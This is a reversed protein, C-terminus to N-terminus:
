GGGAGGKKPRNEKYGGRRAAAKVWTLGYALLPNRHHRLPFRLAMRRRPAIYNFLFRFPPRFPDPAGASPFRLNLPPSAMPPRFGIASNRSSWRFTRSPMRSIVSARPLRSMFFAFSTMPRSFM